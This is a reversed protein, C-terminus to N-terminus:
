PETAIGGHWAHKPLQPQLHPFNPQYLQNQRCVPQLLWVVLCYLHGQVGYCRLCCYNIEVRNRLNQERNRKRHSIIYKYIKLNSRKKLHSSVKKTSKKKKKKTEMSFFTAFKHIFLKHNQENEHRRDDKLLIFISQEQLNLFDQWIRQDWKM